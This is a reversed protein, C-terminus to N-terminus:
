KQLNYEEQLYCLRGLLNPFSNKLRESFYFWRVDNKTLMITVQM